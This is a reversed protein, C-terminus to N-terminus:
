GTGPMTCGERMTARAAARARAVARREAVIPVLPVAALACVAGLAFGAGYGSMGMVMGLAPIALFSVINQVTNHAGLV